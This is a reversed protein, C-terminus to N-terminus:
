QQNYADESEGTRMNVRFPLPSVKESGEKINKMLLDAIHDAMAQYKEEGTFTAYDMYAVGVMAAKDPEIREDLYWM